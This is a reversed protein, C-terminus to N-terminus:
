FYTNNEAKECLPIFNLSTLHNLWMTVMCFLEYRFEHGRVQHGNSKICCEDAGLVKFLWGDVDKLNLIAKPTM